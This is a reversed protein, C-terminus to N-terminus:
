LFCSADVKDVKSNVSGYGDSAAIEELCELAMPLSPVKALGLVVV